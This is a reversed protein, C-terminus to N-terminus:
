AVYREPIKLKLEWGLCICWHHYAHRYSGKAEIFNFEKVM